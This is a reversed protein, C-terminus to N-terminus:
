GQDEAPPDPLVPVDSALQTQGAIRYELDVTEHKGYSGFLGILMVLWRLGSLKGEKVIPEAFVVEGDAITYDVGREQRVGNIFVEVPEEAGRPLRVRRGVPVGESDTRGHGRRSDDVM